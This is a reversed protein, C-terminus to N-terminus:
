GVGSGLCLKCLGWGPFGQGESQKWRDKLVESVHLRGLSARVHGVEGEGIGGHWEGM